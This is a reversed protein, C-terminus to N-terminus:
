ERRDSPVGMTRPSDYAAEWRGDSRAAEVEALGPPKMKGAEILLEVAARNLKSWKSRRRRPTFRQLWFSEDLAAAQSDIWGYCLAVELADARSVTGAEAGKKAFQLWVGSSAAHNEELWAEWESRSALCLIPLDSTSAM